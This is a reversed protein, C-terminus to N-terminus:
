EKEEGNRKHLVRMAAEFDGSVIHGLEARAAALADAITSEESATPPSLVYDIVSAREGPHGIGFRLRAFDPGIHRVLDRLGNHGGHGGGRKARVIGPPLDLDDHVVLLEDISHKFYDLTARVALGSRNVFTDPKLLLLPQGEFAIRALEGHARNNARFAEGSEAALADLFRFGLNHRTSAYEPGPNGLGAILRLPDSAM